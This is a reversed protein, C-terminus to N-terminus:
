LAAVACEDWVGFEVNHRVADEAGVGVCGVLVAAFAGECEAEPLIRGVVPHEEPVCTGVPSVELVAVEM